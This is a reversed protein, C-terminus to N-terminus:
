SSDVQRRRKTPTAAVPLFKDLARARRARPKSANRRRSTVAWADNPPPRCIVQQGVLRVPPTIGVVSRPLSGSSSEEDYEGGEGAPTLDQLLLGAPSSPVARVVINRSRHLVRDQRPPRRRVRPLYRCARGREKAVWILIVIGNSMVKSKFDRNRHSLFINLLRYINPNSIPPHARILRVLGRETSWDHRRNAMCLSVARPENTRSKLM